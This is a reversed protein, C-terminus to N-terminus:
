PSAVVRSKRPNPLTRAEAGTPLMLRGSGPAVVESPKRLRHLTSGSCRSLHHRSSSALSFATICFETGQATRKYVPPYRLWLEVRRYRRKMLRPTRGCEADKTAAAPRESTDNGSTAPERRQTVERASSACSAERADTPTAIVVALADKYM